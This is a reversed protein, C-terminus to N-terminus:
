YTHIHNIELNNFHTIPTVLISSFSKLSVFTQKQIINTFLRWIPFQLQTVSLVAEKAWYLM